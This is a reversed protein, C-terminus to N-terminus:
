PPFRHIGHLSQPIFTEIVMMRPLFRVGKRTKAASVAPHAGHLVDSCREGVLSSVGFIQRPQLLQSGVHRSKVSNIQALEQLIIPRFKDLRQDKPTLM